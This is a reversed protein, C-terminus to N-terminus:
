ICKGIINVDCERINCLYEVTDYCGQEVACHLATQNNNNLANVNINKHDCLLKVIQLNKIANHLPPNEYASADTINVDTKDNKCLKVCKDVDNEKIAIHLPSDVTNSKSSTSRTNYTKGSRFYAAEKAYNSYSGSDLL